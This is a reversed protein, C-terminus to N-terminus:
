ERSVWLTLGKDTKEVRFPLSKSAKKAVSLSAPSLIEAAKEPAVALREIKEFYFAPGPTVAGSLAKRATELVEIAWVSGALIAERAHYIQM